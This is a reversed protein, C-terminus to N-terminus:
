QLISEQGHGDNVAKDNNAKKGNGDKPRVNGFHTVLAYAKFNAASSRVPHERLV